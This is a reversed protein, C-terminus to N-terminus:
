KNKNAAKIRFIEVIDNYETYPQFKAYIDPEKTVEAIFYGSVNLSIDWVEGDQENESRSVEVNELRLMYPSVNQAQDLFSIVNEYSGKYGLPGSVSDLSDSSSLESIELSLSTALNDLYSVLDSVLLIKPVVERSTVVDETMQIEDLKLLQKDVKNLTEIKSEVEKIDGLYQIASKVMPVFVAFSLIVFVIGSAIPIILDSITLRTVNKKRTIVDFEERKAKTNKETILGM